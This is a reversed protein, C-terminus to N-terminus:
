SGRAHDGTSSRKDAWPGGHDPGVFEPLPDDYGLQMLLPRVLHTDMYSLLDFHRHKAAEPVELSRQRRSDVRVIYEGDPLLTEMINTMQRQILLDNIEEDSQPPRDNVQIFRVRHGEVRITLLLLDTGNGMTPMTSRM